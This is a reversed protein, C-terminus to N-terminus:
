NSNGFNRSLYELITTFFVKTSSFLTATILTWVLKVSTQCYCGYHDSLKRLNNPCVSLNMQLLKQSCRLINLSGCDWSWYSSLELNNLLSWCSGIKMVAWLSPLQMMTHFPRLADAPPQYLLQNIGTVWQNSPWKASIHPWFAVRLRPEKGLGVTEVPRIFPRMHFLDQHRKILDDQCNAM